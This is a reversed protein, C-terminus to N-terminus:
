SVEQTLYHVGKLSSTTMRYGAILADQEIVLQPFISAIGSVESMVSLVFDVDILSKLFYKFIAYKWLNQFHFCLQELYSLFFGAAM